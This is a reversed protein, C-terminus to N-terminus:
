RRDVSSQAAEYRAFIKEPAVSENGLICLLQLFLQVGFSGRSFKNRLNVATQHVGFRDALADSLLQYDMGNRAERMTKQVVERWVPDDVSDHKVTITM